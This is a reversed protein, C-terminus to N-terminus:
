LFFRKIFQTHIFNLCADFIKNVPVVRMLALLAPEMALSEVPLTRTTMVPAGHDRHHRSQILLGPFSRPPVSAHFTLIDQAPLFCTQQYLEPKRSCEDPCAHSPYAFCYKRDGAHTGTEKGCGLGIWLFHQRDDIFWRYIM